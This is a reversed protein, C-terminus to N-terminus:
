CVVFAVEDEMDKHEKSGRVANDVLVQTVVKGGFNCCGFCSTEVAELNCNFVDVAFRVGEENVCVDFVRRLSCVQKVSNLCYWADLAFGVPGKFPAVRGIGAKSFTHNCKSCNFADEEWAGETSYKPKLLAAEHRAEAEAIIKDAAVFSKM